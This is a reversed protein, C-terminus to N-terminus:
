PHDYERESSWCPIWYSMNNFTRVNITPVIAGQGSVHTFTTNVRKTLKGHEEFNNLILRYRSKVHISNNERIAQVIM